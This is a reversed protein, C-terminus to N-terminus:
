RVYVGDFVAVFTWLGNHLSWQETIHRDQSKFSPCPQLTVSDVAAYSRPDALQQLKDSLGTEELVRYTWRQVGGRGMDTSEFDKVEDLARLSESASASQLNIQVSM